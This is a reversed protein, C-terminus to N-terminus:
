VQITEHLLIRRKNKRLPIGNVGIIYDQMEIMGAKEGPSDPQVEFILFGCTPNEDITNPPKNGM